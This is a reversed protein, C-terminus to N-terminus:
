VPPDCDPCRTRARTAAPLRCSSMINVPAKAAAFIPDHAGTLAGAIDEEFREFEINKKHLSDLRRAFFGLLGVAEIHGRVILALGYLNKSDFMQGTALMLGDARHVLALKLLRCNLKAPQQATLLDPDGYEVYDERHNALDAYAAKLSKSIDEKGADKLTQTAAESLCRPAWGHMAAYDRAALAKKIDDVM